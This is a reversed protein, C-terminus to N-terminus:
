RSMGRELDPSTQHGTSEKSSFSPSKIKRRAGILNHATWIHWESCKIAGYVVVILIILPVLLLLGVVVVSNVNGM